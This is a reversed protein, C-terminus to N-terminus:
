LVDLRGDVKIPGGAFGCVYGQSAIDKMKAWDEFQADSSSGGCILLFCFLAPSFLPNLSCFKM